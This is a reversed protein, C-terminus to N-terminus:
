SGGGDQAGDAVVKFRPQQGVQTSSPQLNARLIEEKPGMAHVQGGNLVLVQELGALASPRHAIVVAIGGRARVSLIANTLAADGDADLNSNPEDLVVLFPDGYLARALAVRQRQGASLAAGGEGIKTEYGDPLRVIMDHVGAAVAAAIVTDPPADPDFRAINQAVSGDFLEIDQPLYGIHRGLRDPAWQDLAAGDLRIAGRLPMWAGVLARALSSKGAASPGIIGLGAGKELAFSVNQIIPRNFGPATVWLAEVQFSREPKPLAMTESRDPLQNLLASLRAAGQRAALFGRWNAIAIEVPALARSTLISAAIMVGASAQGIIVLYAGLGLIASQLVLRLVKSYSGYTSAVDGADLQGLLYKENLSSWRRSLTESMGLARVVEANRRGAEGFSQRASISSAAAQVSARGKVETLITLGVLVLAGALGLLGLWPHLLFVLLLYFPMWPLDFLAIPGTGSLFSRIQDLDRVPQMGDGRGVTRLPMMLVLAFVRDRLSRDIRLGIRSLVRMRIVDLTGYGVYLVLMIITLGILTATSHAPIVRDYVQLMYIASTLALLNILASFVAVGTFASRCRALAARLETRLPAGTAGPLPQM